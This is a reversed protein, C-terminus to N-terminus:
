GAKARDSEGAAPKAKGLGGEGLLAEVMAVSYFRRARARLLPVGIEAFVADVLRDRERRHPLAHTRDDLEIAAVPEVTRAECIVFDISKAFVKNLAARRQAESGRNEVEVLDALRVQAFVRFDKGLAQDLAQLFAKENATLFGGRRYSARRGRASLLALCVLSLIGALALLPATLRWFGDTGVVM